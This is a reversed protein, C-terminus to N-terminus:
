TPSSAVLASSLTMRGWSRSGPSWPTAPSAEPHTVESETINAEGTEVARRDLESIRASEEASYRDHATKNCLDESKLRYWSEYTENVLTYRGDTDKLFIESPSNQVFDRFRAESERLSDLANEQETVNTGTGRYGKFNGDEGFVPMGNISLRLINGQSTRLEYRFDNFPRHADIEALHAEWKANDTV